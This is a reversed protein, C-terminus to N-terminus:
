LNVESSFVGKLTITYGNVILENSISKESFLSCSGWGQRASARCSVSIYICYGDSKANIRSGTIQSKLLVLRM